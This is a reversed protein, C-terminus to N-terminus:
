RDSKDSLKDLANLVQSFDSRDRIPDLEQDSRIRHWVLRGDKFAAKKLLDVAVMADQPTVKSTLSFIGASRFLIDASSSKQLVFKADQRAKNSDGHRAYLVGRTVRAVLNDPQLEVIKSMAAIAESNGDLFEAQVTAINQLANVSGSNLSWAVQFDSLARQPDDAKIQAMGRSLWSKEDLPELLLFTKLAEDAEDTRGLRALVQHRLYHVRTQPVQLAIASELDELALQMERLGIRALARNLYTVGDDPGLLIAQDFDKAAEAHHQQRLRIMGRHIFGWRSDDDFRISTSYCLEAKDLNGLRQYNRGKLLWGQPWGPNAVMLEDLMSLSADYKEDQFLQVASIMLDRNSRLGGPELTREIEAAQEVDGAARLLDAEVSSLVPLLSEAGLSKGHQVEDLAHQITAIRKQGTQLSAQKLLQHALWYRSYGVERIEHDRVERPLGGLDQLYQTASSGVRRDILQELQELQGDSMLYDEHVAVFPARQKEVAAAFIRSENEKSALEWKRSFVFLTVVTVVFLILATLAVTTASTLRPHRRIWKRCRELPSRNPAHVLPLENLHRSLDEHVQAASQYGGSHAMLCHNVITEIDIPIAPEIKRISPPLSRRETIMQQIAHDNCGPSDYPLKGCLAEYLIAGLSFVDCQPCIESHSNLSELHHSSMYPLTGGVLSGDQKAEGQLRSLHFDLILPHGDDSILVNGPKLDGHVIGKEHAYDLGDAIQSALWLVMKRFSFNGIEATCQAFKELDLADALSETQAEPITGVVTSARRGVVTSILSKGDLKFRSLGAMDRLTAIGIFPMCISQLQADKKLSYIPIINTHQLRALSQPELDSRETVKLAVLRNSLETERALFVTGFAGKGLVGVLEFGHFQEGVSPLTLNVGARRNSESDSHEWKPWRSANIGLRQEFEIPECPHGYQFRVRYEEFAFSTVEDASFDIKAYRRLYDEVAPTEGASWRLELDLRILECLTGKNAPEDLDIFDEIKATGAAQWAAEFASAVHELEDDRHAVDPKM